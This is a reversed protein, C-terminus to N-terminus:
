FSLGAREAASAGRNQEVERSASEAARNAASQASEAQSSREISERETKAAEAQRESAGAEARHMAENASETAEVKPRSEAEKTARTEREAQDKKVQEAAEAARADAKEQEKISQLNITVEQQYEQETNALKPDVSRIEARNGANQKELNTDKPTLGGGSHHGRHHDGGGSPHGPDEPTPDPEPPVPEDPEEEIERVGNTFNIEDIPQGGCGEKFTFSDKHSNGNEDTWEYSVAYVKTGKEVTTCGVIEVKSTDVDGTEFNSDMYYNHFTGVVSKESMVDERIINTVYEYVKQHLAPDNKMAETLDNPNNFKVGEIGFNPNSTKAQMYAYTAALQAPQIMRSELNEEMEIKSTDSKLAEGFNYKGNKEANYTSGDESAFMGHYTSRDAISEYGAAYEHIATPTNPVKANDIIKGIGLGAGAAISIALAAVLVTRLAKSKKAKEIVESLLPRDKTENEEVINEIPAEEEIEEEAEEVLGGNVPEVNLFEEVSTSAPEEFIQEAEVTPEEVPEEEKPEEIEPKIEKVEGKKARKAKEAEIEALRKLIEERRKLKAEYENYGNLAHEGEKQKAKREIADELSEANKPFEFEFEPM